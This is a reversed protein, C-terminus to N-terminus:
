IGSAAGIEEQLETSRFGLSRGTVFRSSAPEFGALLDLFCLDIGFVYIRTNTEEAPPWLCRQICRTCDDAIAGYTIGRAFLILLRLDHWFHACRPLARRHADAAQRCQRDVNRREILCRAPQDRLDPHLFTQYDAERPLFLDCTRIM